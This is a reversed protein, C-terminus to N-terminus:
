APKLGSIHRTSTCAAKRAPIQAWETKLAIELHDFHAMGLNIDSSFGWYIEGELDLAQLKGKLKVNLREM